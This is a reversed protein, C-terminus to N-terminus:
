GLFFLERSGIFQPPGSEQNTQGAKELKILL